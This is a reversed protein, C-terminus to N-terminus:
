QIMGVDCRHREVEGYERHMVICYMDRGSRYGAGTAWADRAALTRFWEILVGQQEKVGATHLHGHYWYRFRTLGWDEARDSAMVGLLDGQKATDGHTIGILVKGFRHYWFLSPSLDVTVRENNSFHEALALAIAFASHPDHNGRVIRVIVRKHKELTRYIGHKLARLAVLMVKQHRTDVDLINGSQPTRNKTDDAHMLDGLPVFLATHAAPAASVLRDIAGTTLQEAINTDFDAGAEEAWAYMGFHPDGIPYVALLDEDAVKPVPIPKSLGKADEVLSAVFERLLEELQGEDLKSKVWQGSVEGEKNYYTSVGKVVFPAPVERTMDYGPAYGRRAANKEAAAICGQVSSFNVGLAKAAARMSGHQNVADIARKQTESAYKKIEEDVRYKPRTM